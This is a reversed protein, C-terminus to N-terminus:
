LRNLIYDMLSASAGFLVGSPCPDAKYDVLGARRKELTNRGEWEIFARARKVILEKDTWESFFSMTENLVAEADSIKIDTSFHGYYDFGNGGYGNIFVGPRVYYADKDYISGQIFFVLTFEDIVKTWRKGKKKFGQAKLIPKVHEILAEETLREQM